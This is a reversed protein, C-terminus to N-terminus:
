ALEERLVRLAARVWTKVTGLPQKLRSAMESQSLGEYYALHIVERQAPTLKRFADTLVRRRDISLAEDGAEALAAPGEAGHLNVASAAMRGDMSRLYDIARNRAVTTIWTSMTGRASDFSGAHSWVRLFTEQVLDEAVAADRVVRLAVAYAIRGYKDYLASLAQPDREQLRRALAADAPRADDSGSVGCRESKRTFGWAASARDFLNREGYLGEM